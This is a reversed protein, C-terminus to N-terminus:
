ACSALPQGALAASTGSPFLYLYLGPTGQKAQLSHPTQSKHLDIKEWRQMRSMKWCADAIVSPESNATDVTAPSYKLGQSSKNFVDGVERDINRIQPETMHTSPIRCCIRAWQLGLYKQIVSRNFVSPVNPLYDIHLFRDRRPLRRISSL